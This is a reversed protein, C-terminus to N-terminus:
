HRIHNLLDSTTQHLIETPADALWVTYDKLEIILAAREKKHDDDEKLIAQVAEKNEILTKQYEAIERFYQLKVNYLLKRENITRKNIDIILSKRKNIQCQIVSSLIRYRIM